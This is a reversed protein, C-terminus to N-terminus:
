PLRLRKLFEIVAANFADPQEINGVHGADPLTVRTADPHKASM